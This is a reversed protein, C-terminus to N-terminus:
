RGLDELRERLRQEHQETEERHHRFMEVIERDDTEDTTSIMSDLIRLVSQEMAHTDEIYDLLKEQLKDEEQAVLAEEESLNAPDFEDRSYYVGERAKARREGGTCGRIAIYRVQAVEDSLLSYLTLRHHRM